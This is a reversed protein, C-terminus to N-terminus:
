FTAPGRGGWPGADRGPPAGYAGPGPGRSGPRVPPGAFAGGGPVARASGPHYRPRGGPRVQAPPNQRFLDAVLGLALPHGHTFDLVAEHRDAPVGLGELYRRAEARSLNRLPIVRIVAQWGPDTLWAPAPRSTGAIVTLSEPPLAPLFHDRLWGDLPALREYNDIFLCFRGPLTEVGLAATFAEPTPETLYGSVYFTPIGRRRCLEAFQGLLATKGVGSPGYIFLLSFPPTPASIAGEFLGLEAERGVFRARRARALQEGLSVM